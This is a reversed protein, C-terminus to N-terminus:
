NGCYSDNGDEENKNKFYEKCGAIPSTTRSRIDCWGCDNGHLDKGCTRGLPTRELWHQCNDCIGGLNETDEDDTVYIKEAAKTQDKIIEVDIISDTKVVEALKFTGPLLLCGEKIQKMFDQRYEELKEKSYTKSSAVLCQIIYVM